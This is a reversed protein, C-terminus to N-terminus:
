HSNSTHHRNNNQQQSIFEICQDQKMNASNKRNSICQLQLILSIHETISYFKFTIIVIQLIFSSLKYVIEQQFTVYKLQYSPIGACFNSIIIHKTQSRVWYVLNRTLMFIKKSFFVNYIVKQIYKICSMGMTM